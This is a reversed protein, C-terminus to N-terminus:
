VSNPAKLFVKKVYSIVNDVNAYELRVSSLSIDGLSKNHYLCTGHSHGWFLSDWDTHILSITSGVSKILSLQFSLM